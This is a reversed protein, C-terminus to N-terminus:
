AEEPQAEVAIFEVGIVVDDSKVTYSNVYAKGDPAQLAGDFYCRMIVTIYGETNLPVTYGSPFLNVSKDDPTNLTRAVSATGRFNELAVSEVYFDVSTAYFYPHYTDVSDPMIVSANLATVELAEFASAIYITYDIFYAENDEEPVNAFELTAGPKANGTENDVAYHNTLYKLFTAPVNNEHTVAIMNERATGKFNVDFTLDGRTISAPTKAIILNPSVKVSASLGNAGVNENRAFWALSHNAFMFGIFVMILLIFSFIVKITQKYVKTM